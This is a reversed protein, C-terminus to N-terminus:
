SLLVREDTTIGGLTVVIPFSANSPQEESEDTTIGSLTLFIPSSANKPHSMLSSECGHRFIFFPNAILPFFTRYRVVWLLENM